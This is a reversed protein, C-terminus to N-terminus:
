KIIMYALGISPIFCATYNCACSEENLSMHEWHLSMYNSEIIAKSMNLEHSNLLKIYSSFRLGKRESSMLPKVALSPMSHFVFNKVQESVSGSANEGFVHEFMWSLMNGAFLDGLVPYLQSM